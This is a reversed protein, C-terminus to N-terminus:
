ADSVEEIHELRCIISSDTKCRADVVKAQYYKERGLRVKRVGVLRFLSGYSSSGPHIYRVLKGINRNVQSKIM